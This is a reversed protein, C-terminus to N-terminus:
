WALRKAGSHALYTFGPALAVLVVDWTQGALFSASGPPLFLPAAPFVGPTGTTFHLPNGVQAPTAIFNWTTGDPWIGFLPGSGPNGIPSATVLTFGESAGVPFNIAALTLDGVGGGTTTAVLGFCTPAPSFTMRMRMGLTTSNTTPATGITPNYTDHGHRTGGGTRVSFGGTWGGGPFSTGAHQQFFCVDRVGDWQFTLGNCAIPLSTWTDAAWNFTYAGDTASDWMSVPGSLNNIWQGAVAPSAALHGVWVQTWAISCTGSTGTTNTPVVALDTLVAGAPIGASALNAATYVHLSTYGNTGWSSDRYPITNGGGTTTSSDPFYAIQANVAVALLFLASLTRAPMRNLSM